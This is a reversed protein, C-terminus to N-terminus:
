TTSIPCILTIALDVRSSLVVDNVFKFALWIDIWLVDETIFM